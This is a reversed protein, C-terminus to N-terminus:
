CHVDIMLPAFQELLQKSIRTHCGQFAAVGDARFCFLKTTIKTKDLGSASGLISLIVDLFGDVTAVNAEM